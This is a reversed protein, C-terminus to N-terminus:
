FAGGVFTFRVMCSVGMQEVPDISEWIGVILDTGGDAYDIVLQGKGPMSQPLRALFRRCEDVQAFQYSVVCAYVTQLNKRDFTDASVARPYAAQQGIRRHAPLATIVFKSGAGRPLTDDAIIFPTFATEGPAARWTIKM